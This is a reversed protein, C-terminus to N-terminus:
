SMVSGQLNWSLLESDLDISYMSQLEAEWNIPQDNNIDQQRTVFSRGSLAMAEAVISATSEEGDLPSDGVVFPPPSGSPDPERDRLFVCTLSKQRAVGSEFAVVLHLAGGLELPQRRRMYPYVQWLRRSYDLIQCQQQQEQNHTEGEEKGAGARVTYQYPGTIFSNACHQIRMTVLTFFAHARFFSALNYNAFEYSTHTLCGEYGSSDCSQTGSTYNNDLEVISGLEVAKAFVSKDLGDLYELLATARLAVEAALMTDAPTEHLQRLQRVLTPWIAVEIWFRYFRSLLKSKLPTNDLAKHLVASWAPEAFVSDKGCRVDSMLVTFFSEFILHLGLETFGQSYGGTSIVASLGAAHNSQYTVSNENCVIELKQLITQAALTTTTLQSTPDKFAKELAQQLSRLAADYLQADLWTCRAWGRQMNSWSTVLLKTAHQLAASQGLLPPMLELSAGWLRLDHGTGPAADLCWILEAALRDAPAPSINCPKPAKPLRMKHFSGVDEHTTRNWIPKPQRKMSRPPSPLIRSDGDDRPPPYM